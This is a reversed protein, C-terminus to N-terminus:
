KGKHPHSAGSRAPQGLPGQSSPAGWGGLVRLLAVFPAGQGPGRGWRAVKGAGRPSRRAVSLAWRGAGGPLPPPRRGRVWGPVACGARAARAFGARKRRGPRAVQARREPGRPVGSDGSTRGSRSLRAEGEGATRSWLGRESGDEGVRRGASPCLQDQPERPAGAGGRRGRSRGRQRWRGSGLSPM